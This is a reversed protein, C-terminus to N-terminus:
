KLFGKVYSKYASRINKETDKTAGLFEFGLAHVYKGYKLNTGIMAYDKGFLNTISQMLQGTDVMPKDGQARSFEHWGKPVAHFNSSKWYHWAQEKNFRSGGRDRRIAIPDRWKTGDPKKGDRYRLATDKGELQSIARFLPTMDEHGRWIKRMAETLESADFVISAV